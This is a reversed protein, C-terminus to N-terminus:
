ERNMRILDTLISDLSGNVQIKEIKEAIRELVELEKLRLAVPNDEMVKATNLMSRTAATEERRRVVNAQAAKEAEVVKSLIEKIEGPLIIDKVGVSDVEIGYESAKQRIYESISRDIAGKDELLADLTREGVAGRLAFQLEKYLFGTIDSLGNKAKLPDQIRFGATLNLRLPVKDKSLIEQGSVEMNQLRLDITETKFSRGFIWWANVGPQLQTQFEQNIYLLGIHQSPVQCIHVCSRILNKVETTGEVLEAILRPSLKADTSIDIIEVEVGQLFLKRSTPPLIAIVKKRYRVVAVQFDLLEVNECYAAVFEPHKEILIDELPFDPNPLIRSITRVSVDRDIAWFAYEGKELPKVFNNQLYLLGIEYESIQFKKIGYLSIGRLQQVFIDPLQLTEDLNLFHSEVEIFGRWFARLQNSGISLWTQGWHVLATQNFGTRIILLHEQIENAHSSRLLLELNDIEAEPENLNYIRVNWYRGFYTYEGPSLIKKFDSRHYLIGIENPKIYFNKWM